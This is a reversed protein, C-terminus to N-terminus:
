FWDLEQLEPVASKLREHLNKLDDMRGDLRDARDDLKQAKAELKSEAAEMDREFDDSDYDPLIMHFVGGVTKLGFSAGELGVEVGDMAIEKIESWASEARDHYERVLDRQGGDLDVEDGNLFLRCEKTIEVEGDHGDREEILISGHSLSINARDHIDFHPRCPNSRHGYHGEAFVSIVPVAICLVLAIKSKM